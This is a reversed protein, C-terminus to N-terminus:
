LIDNKYIESAEIFSKLIVSLIPGIIMGLIGIIKFGIYMSILAILPHVGIQTGLIKPQMIQRMLNIVLYIIIYGTALYYEGSILYILSGPWLIFGSGFFPLSDIISIIISLLLIYPSKIIFLGILCIFFTYFMLILQTKFYGGLSYLLYKKIIIYHNNKEIPIYKNIINKLIYKDKTFFYSSILSMIIIMFFNPITKIINFSNSSGTKIIPTIIDIFNINSIITKIFNESFPLINIIKQFKISVSNIFIELSNKINEIYNPLQKIFLEAESIVKSIITAVVSSFFLILILIVILSSLNRKIKLKTELFNVFPNFILSLIWGIFFPAIYEFIYKFFIYSSTIISLISILNLILKKNKLFKEILNNIYIM